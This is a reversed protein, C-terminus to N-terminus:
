VPDGSRTSSRCGSPASPLPRSPARTRCCSTCIHMGNSRAVASCSVEAGAGSSHLRGLTGLPVGPWCTLPLADRRGSEPVRAGGSHLVNPRSVNQLRQTAFFDQTIRLSPTSIFPISGDAEQTRNRLRAQPTPYNCSAITELTLSVDATEDAQTQFSEFNPKTTVLCRLDVPRGCAWVRVMRPLRIVPTAGAVCLGDRRGPGLM